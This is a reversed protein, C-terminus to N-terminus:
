EIRSTQKDAKTKIWELMDNWESDTMKNLSSLINKLDTMLNPLNLSYGSETRNAFSATQKIKLYEFAFHVSFSDNEYITEDFKDAVNITVGYGHGLRDYIKLSFKDNYLNHLVGNDNDLKIRAHQFNNEHLWKLLDANIYDHVDKM